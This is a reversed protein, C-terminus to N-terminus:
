DTFLSPVDPNSGASERFYKEILESIFAVYEKAPQIFELVKSEDSILFDGYDSQVRENMLNKYFSSQKADFKGEQVFKQNLLTVVGSHTKSVLDQTLLLARTAHLCSYYLRNILTDYFKNMFLIDVESLLASSKKMKIKIEKDRRSM